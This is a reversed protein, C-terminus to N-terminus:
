FEVILPEVDARTATFTWFFDHSDIDNCGVTFANEEIAVSSVYLSCNHGYSTLQISFNDDNSNMVLSKIYDPLGVTATGNQITSKGSLRIGHFPSELSGYQLLM